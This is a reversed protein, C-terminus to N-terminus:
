FWTTNRGVEGGLLGIVLSNHRREAADRPTDGLRNRLNVDCGSGVHAQIVGLNSAGPSQECAIHLASGGPFTKDIADPNAGNSLLLKVMAVDGLRPALHLPPPLTTSNHNIDVGDQIHRKAAIIGPRYVASHLPSALFFDALEDVDGTDEARQAIKRWSNSSPVHYFRMHRMIDAGTSRYIDLIAAAGRDVDLWRPDARRKLLELTIHPNQNMIAVALASRGDSLPSPPFNHELLLIVVESWSGEVATMPASGKSAPDMSTADTISQVLLVIVRIDRKSETAMQRLAACLPQSTKWTGFAVCSTADAGCKVLFALVDPELCGVHICRALVDRASEGSLRFEDSSSAIRSILTWILEDHSAENRLLDRFLAEHPASMAWSFMEKRRPQYPLSVVTIDGEILRKWFSYLKLDIIQHFLRTHELWQSSAYGLFGQIVDIGAQSVKKMAVRMLDIQMPPAQGKRSLLSNVRGGLLSSKLASTKLRQDVSVRTDFLNYNLYTVCVSGMELSAEDLSFHYRATIPNDASSLLHTLASHHIFWVQSEGEDIELLAGGCEGVFTAPNRSITTVDWMTNGPEVSLAVKLENLTLSPDAAAVLKFIKNGHRTNSIRQLAKHFAEPLNRPLTTVIDLIEADSVITPDYSPFITKLQLAVWLYRYGRKTMGRAGAILQQKILEELEPPFHRRGARRGIEKEIFSTIEGARAKDGMSVVHDIQLLTAVCGQLKSDPRSSFCLHVIHRKQLRQLAQLVDDVEEMDCEELGDLVLFHVRHEPMVSKCFFYCVAKKPAEKQKGESKSVPENPDDDVFLDGVVNALVVTKGSGLNGKLWLTSSSSAARWSKYPETELIWGSTGRRRERRWITEFDVKDSSLLILIHRRREEIARKRSEVSLTIELSRLKGMAWEQANLHSRTALVAVLHDELPKAQVEFSSIISAAVLAFRSKQAYTAIKQCLQVIVALYECMYDQLERSKPFLLALDSHISCSRSINMMLTSINDFFSFYGIAAQLSMRVAAWVGSAIMNQSGGVILDGICVFKQIRDLITALRMSQCTNASSPPSRSKLKKFNGRQDEDLITAFDSVAQALRIELKLRGFDVIAKSTNEM